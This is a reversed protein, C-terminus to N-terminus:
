ALDEELVTLILFSVVTQDMSHISAHTICEEGCSLLHDPQHRHPPLVRLFLGDVELYFSSDRGGDKLFKSDDIVHDEREFLYSCKRGLRDLLIDQVEDFLFYERLWGGVGAQDDDHFTPAIHLEPMGDGDPPLVEGPAVLLIHGVEPQEVEKMVIDHLEFLVRQDWADLKVEVLVQARVVLPDDVIDLLRRKSQPVLLLILQQPLLEPKDHSTVQAVDLLLLLNTSLLDVLLSLIAAEAVNM